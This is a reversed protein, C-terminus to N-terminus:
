GYVTHKIKNVYFMDKKDKQIGLDADGYVCYNANKQVVSNVKNFVEDIKDDIFYQMKKQTYARAIIEKLNIKTENSNRMLFLLTM